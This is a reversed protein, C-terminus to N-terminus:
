NKTNLRKFINVIDQVVNSGIEKAAEASQIKVIEALALAPSKGSFINTGLRAIKRAILFALSKKSIEVVEIHKADIWELISQIPPFSGPKRGFIQFYIYSSGLVDGGSSNMDVNLSQASAGSATIKKLDQDAKIATIMNGLTAEIVELNTM